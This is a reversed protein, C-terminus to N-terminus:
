FTYNIKLGVERTRNKPEISNDISSVTSDFIKWSRYFPGIGLKHQNSFQKSVLLDIDIGRGNHQKHTIKGEKPEFSYQRGRILQNYAISPSFSFNHGLNINLGLGLHAYVLRNKRDYDESDIRSKLDHLVRYGIGPELLLDITPSIPLTYTYKLNINYVYRPINHDVISGYGTNNGNEDQGQGTYTIQGKSYRGDLSLAHQPNFHYKIMGTFSWLNGREQMLIQDGNTYERYTEKYFESGITYEFSSNALVPMSQLALFSMSLMCLKKM